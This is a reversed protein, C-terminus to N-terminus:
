GLPKSASSTPQWALNGSEGVTLPGDHRERRGPDAARSSGCGMTHLRKSKPEWRQSPIRVPPEPPTSSPSSLALVPSPYTNQQYDPACSQRPQVLRAIVYPLDQSPLCLNPLLAPTRCHLNQCQTTKSGATSVVSQKRRTSLFIRHSEPGPPETHHLHLAPTDAHLKHGPSTDTDDSFTTHLTFHTGHSICLELAHHTSVIVLRETEANSRDNYGYRSQLIAHLATYVEYTFTTRMNPSVGLTESSM